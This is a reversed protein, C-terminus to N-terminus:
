EIHYHQELLNSILPAWVGVSVFSSSFDCVCVCVRLGVLRFKFYVKQRHLRKCPISDAIPTYTRTHTRTNTVEFRNQVYHTSHCTHALTVAAAANTYARSCFLPFCGAWAFLATSSVGNIWRYETDMPCLNTSLPRVFIHIYTHSVAFLLIVNRVPMNWETHYM